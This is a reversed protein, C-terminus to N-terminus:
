ESAASDQSKLEAGCKSCFLPRSLGRPYVTANCRSCFQTNRINLFAIVVLAVIFFWPVNGRTIWETFALFVAGFGIVLIPHASKKTTYVAKKFFIAAGVGLLIWGVMFIAFPRPMAAWYELFSTLSDRM